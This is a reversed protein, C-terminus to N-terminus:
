VREMELQRALFNLRLGLAHSDVESSLVTSPAGNSLRSSETLYTVCSQADVDLKVNTPAVSPLKALTEYVRVTDLEEEPDIEEEEDQKKPSEDFIDEVARETEAPNGDQEVVQSEGSFLDEIGNQLKVSTKM